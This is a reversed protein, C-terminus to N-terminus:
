VLIRVIHEAEEPRRLMSQFLSIHKTQKPSRSGSTSPVCTPEERAEEFGSSAVQHPRRETGKEFDGAARGM